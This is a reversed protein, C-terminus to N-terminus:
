IKECDMEAEILENPIKHEKRYLRGQSITLHVIFYNYKYDFYNWRKEILVHRAEKTKLDVISLLKKCTNSM